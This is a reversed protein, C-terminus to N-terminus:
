NISIKSEYLYRGNSILKTNVKESVRQVAQIPTPIDASYDLELQRSTEIPM